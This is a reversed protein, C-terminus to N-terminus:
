FLFCLFFSVVALQPKIGESRPCFYHKSQCMGIELHTKIAAAYALASAITEHIRAFRELFLSFATRGMELRLQEQSVSRIQSLKATVAEGCSPTFFCWPRRQGFRGQTGRSRRRAGHTRSAPAQSRLNDHRWPQARVPAIVFSRLLPFGRRGNASRGQRSLAHRCASKKECRQPFRGRGEKEVQFTSLTRGSWRRRRQGRISAPRHCRGTALARKPIGRKNPPNKPYHAGRGCGM